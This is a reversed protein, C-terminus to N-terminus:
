EKERTASISIEGQSYMAKGSLKDDESLTMVVIIDEGDLYLGFSLKDEEYKIKELNYKYSMGTFSLTAMYEDADKSIEIIGQDYGYPAGPATYKWKGVPDKVPSSMLNLSILSLILVSTLMAAINKKM